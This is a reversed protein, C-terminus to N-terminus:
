DLFDWAAFRDDDAWGALDRDVEELDLLIMESVSWNKATYGALAEAEERAGDTWGSRSFGLLTVTHERKKPIVKEAQELLKQVVASGEARGTWKCEGLVMTNSTTNIAAVDIQAERNWVSGVLGPLAEFRGRAGAQAVWLRCIEEWTSAGIFQSMHQEIDALTQERLGMEIEARHPEIFRYYFRLFPDVLYYRGSKSSPKATVPIRRQIIRAEQMVQLYPPLSSQVIGTSAHIEKVTARGQSIARLISVYRSPDQVHDVLLLRPEFHYPSNPTLLQTVINQSLSVGADLRNWYGPIGGWIAYLAVRTEPAYDPFFAKTYPYSFPQLYIASNTRGFLPGQASIVHTHMMGMYSGALVLMINKNSLSLDWAKQFQSSISRDEALLYTFEDIIVVLKKDEAAADSLAQLASGWDAYVVRPKGLFDMLAHCFKRLQESPTGVEAFWLFARMEEDAETRTKLWHTLLATKGVRRRGYVVGFTAGERQYLRDLEDLEASRGRFTMEDEQIL